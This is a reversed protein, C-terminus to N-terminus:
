VRTNEDSTYIRSMQTHKMVAEKFFFLGAFFFFFVALQRSEDSEDSEDSEESSSGSRADAILREFAVSFFFDIELSELLLVVLLMPLSLLRRFFATELADDFGLIRLFNDSEKESELLEESSSLLGVPRVVIFGRSGSLSLLESLSESALFVLFDADLAAM